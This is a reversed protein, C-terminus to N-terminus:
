IPGFPGLAAIRSYYLKRPRTPTRRQGSIVAMASQANFCNGGGRETHTQRETEIGTKRETETGRETEREIYIIM